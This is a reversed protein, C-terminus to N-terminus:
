QSKNSEIQMFSIGCRTSVHENKQALKQISYRKDKRILWYFYKNVHSVAIIDKFSKVIENEILLKDIIFCQIDIPPVKARKIAEQEMGFCVTSLLLLMLPLYM